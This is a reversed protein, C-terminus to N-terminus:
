LSQYIIAGDGKWNDREIEEQSKRSGFKYRFVINNSSAVSRMLFDFIDVLIWLM